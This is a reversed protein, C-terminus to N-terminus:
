KMELVNRPALREHRTGPHAQYDQFDNDHREFATRRQDDAEPPDPYWPAEPLHCGRAM